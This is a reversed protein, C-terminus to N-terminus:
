WYRVTRLIVSGQIEWALDKFWFSLYFSSLTVHPKAVQQLLPKAASRQDVGVTTRGVTMRTNGSEQRQGCSVFGVERESDGRLDTIIVPSAAQTRFGVTFANVPPRRPEGFNLTAAARLLIYGMGKKSVM